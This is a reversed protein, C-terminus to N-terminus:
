PAARKLIEGSDVVTAFEGHLDSLAGSHVAEASRLTGDLAPRAFAATADSIVYTTFGLNGAMRATTSVCHNTTLGVIVLTGIGDRRLDKELNTGIFASNVHKRYVPEAPEPAAAAQIANGPSEPRLLSRPEVSDHVVHRIPRGSKRWAALLRAINSEADPNNREGWRPDLFAQQVDILILATSQPLRPM